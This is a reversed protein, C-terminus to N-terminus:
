KFLHTLNKKVTKYILPDNASQLEAMELAENYYLIAQDWQGEMAHILGLNNLIRPEFCGLGIDQIKKLASKLKVKAEKHRGANGDAMGARNLLVIAKLEAKKNTEKPLYIM